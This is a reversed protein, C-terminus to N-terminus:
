APGAPEMPADPLVLQCATGARVGRSEDPAPALHAATRRPLRYTVSASSSLGDASQAAVTFTYTGPTSTDIPAGSPRGDQDTCSSIGPGGAGETCSFSSALAQNVVYTGGNAPVAIAATPASTDAAAPAAGILGCALAAVLARAAAVMNLRVYALAFPEGSRELVREVFQARLQDPLPDLHRVLCVTRVFARPDESERAEARALLIVTQSGRM